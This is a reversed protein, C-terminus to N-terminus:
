WTRISISAAFLGWGSALDLESRRERRSEVIMYIGLGVLAALAGGIAHGQM